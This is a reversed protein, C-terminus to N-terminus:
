RFEWWRKKTNIAQSLDSLFSDLQDYRGNMGEKLAGILLGEEMQNPPVPFSFKYGLKKLPLNFAKFGRELDPLPHTLQLNTTVGPNSHTLPLKGTLCTWCTVALAFYDTRHDVIELKNLLLEPAAFGLPFLTNRQERNKRSMALGFDILSVKLESSPDVLINGPKLNLHYIGSEHIHNLLPALKELVEFLAKSKEKTKFGHIYDHLTIGPEFNKVFIFESDSEFRDKIEPLGTVVFSYSSESRLRDVLHQNEANKELGKIVVKEGSLKDEGLYVRAFKRKGKGGIQDIIRYRESLTM